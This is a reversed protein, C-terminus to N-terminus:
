KTNAGRDPSYALRYIADAYINTMAMLSDISLYEDKQHAVEQEGPFSAGFAVCHDMARAYTGGGIVLPQTEMDGTNDRYCDMLTTIFPDDIPRYLPKHHLGKIIGFNYKNIVPMVADYVIDEDMTVPYRINITLRAAKTDVDIMGVNLILKGSPEDVLGCGLDTGDLGYGIHQNYFGIFDNVDENGFSLGGLFEMMASIANIGCEPRAGHASIGTIVIELTKGIVKTRIQVKATERFEAAKAKIEEYIEKRQALLIVRANAAVMNPAEGGKFSRLEL